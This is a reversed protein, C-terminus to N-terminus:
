NAATERKVLIDPDRPFSITIIVIMSLLMVMAKEKMRIKINSTLDHPTSGEMKRAHHSADSLQTMTQKLLLYM